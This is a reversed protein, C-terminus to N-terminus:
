RFWPRECESVQFCIFGCMCTPCAWLVRISVSHTSPMHHKCSQLIITSFIPNQNSTPNSTQGSNSRFSHTRTPFSELERQNLDRWGGWMLTCYICLIIGSRTQTYFSVVMTLKIKLQNLRGSKRRTIHHFPLHSQELKLLKTWSMLPERHLKRSFFFFFFPSM